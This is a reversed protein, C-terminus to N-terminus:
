CIIDINMIMEKKSSQLHAKTHLDDHNSFINIKDYMINNM